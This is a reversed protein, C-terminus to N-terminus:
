VSNGCSGTIGNRLMHELSSFAPISCFIQTGMNMAANNVMAMLYPNGLHGDVSSHICLIILIHM